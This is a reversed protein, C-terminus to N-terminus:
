RPERKWGALLISRALECRSPYNLDYDEAKILAALRDVEAPDPEADAEDALVALVAAMERAKAPPMTSSAGNTIDFEVRVDNGQQSLVLRSGEAPRWKGGEPLEPRPLIVPEPLGAAEYLALAAAPVESAPVDVYVTPHGSNVIVRADGGLTPMIVLQADCGPQDYEYPEM